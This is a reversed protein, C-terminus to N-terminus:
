TAILSTISTLSRASLSLFLACLPSHERDPRHTTVSERHFSAKIEAPASTIARRDFLGSLAALPAARRRSLFAVSSERQRVRPTRTARGPLVDVCIILDVELAAKAEVAAALAAREAELV